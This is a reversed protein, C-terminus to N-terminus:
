YKLFYKIKAYFKDCIKIETLVITVIGDAPNLVRKCTKRVPSPDADDSM